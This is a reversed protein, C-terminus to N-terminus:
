WWAKPNLWGNISNGKRRPLGAIMPRTWSPAPRFTMVITAYNSSSGSFTAAVSGPAGQIMFESYHGYNASFNDFEDGAGNLGTFGSGPHVTGSGNGEAGYILEGATDTTVSGSTYTTGSPNGTAGLTKDLPNARDAGIWESIHIHRWPKATGFTATVTPAAASTIDKAYHGDIEQDSTVNYSQAVTNNFNMGTASMSTTTLGTTPGYGTDAVVLNGSATNGPFVVAITTGTTGNSDAVAKQGAYLAIGL